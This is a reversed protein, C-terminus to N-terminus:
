DDYIRTSQAEAAVGAHLSFGNAQAVRKGDQEPGCPALTQLKFAKQGQRAGFAVRYTISHGQLTPLADEGSDPELALHSSTPTECWSAAGSWSGALAPV